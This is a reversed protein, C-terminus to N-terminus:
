SYIISRNNDTSEPGAAGVSLMLLVDAGGAVTCCVTVCCAGYGASCKAGAACSSLASLCCQWVFISACGDKLSVTRM